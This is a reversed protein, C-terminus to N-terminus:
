KDLRVSPLSYAGTTPYNHKLYYDTVAQAAKQLQDFSVKGTFPETIVSLEEPSFVTSGVIEYRLVQIQNPSPEPLEPLRPAEPPAITPPAITPLPRPAEPQPREIPRPVSQAIASIPTLLILPLVSWPNNAFM